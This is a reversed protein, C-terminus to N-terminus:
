MRRGNAKGSSTSRSITARRCRAHFSNRRWPGEGDMVGGTTHSHWRISGGHVECRDDSQPHRIRDVKEVVDREVIEVANDAIRRRAAQEIQTTGDDTAVVRDERAEDTVM